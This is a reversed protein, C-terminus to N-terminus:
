CEYKSNLSKRTGDIAIHTARFGPAQKSGDTFMEITM